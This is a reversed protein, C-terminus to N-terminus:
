QGRMADIYQVVSALGEVQQMLLLPVGGLAINTAALWAKENEKHGGMFADLGRFVRLFLLALEWEKSGQKLQYHDDKLRSITAESLGVIKGLQKNNIKWYDAANRLAKTLVKAQKDQTTHLSKTM